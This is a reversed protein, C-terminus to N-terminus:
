YRRKKFQYHSSDDRVWMGQNSSKWYFQEYNENAGYANGDGGRRYEFALDRTSSTPVHCDLHEQQGDLINTLNQAKAFLSSEAEEKMLMQEENRMLKSQIEKQAHRMHTQTRMKEEEAQREMAEWERKQREKDLERVRLKERLVEIEHEYRAFEMQAELKACDLRFDARLNEEKQRYLAFLAKWRNGYDHDFTGEESLRPGLSREKQFDVNKKSFNRDVLGINQDVFTNPEVIVPKLSHGLFYCKEECKQIAINASSKKSFDVFGEGMSKGRNDVLIVAREIEGFVSFAHNLLENTVYPGLNRIKVTGCSPAFKFRLNRGKLLTGDLSRQVKEANAYYDFKVFAFNKENNVFIDAVEMDSDFLGRLDAESIEKGINGIYLRNRGAFKKESPDLPTLDVTPMTSISTIKDEIRDIKTLKNSFNQFGGYQESDDMKCKSDNDNRETFHKGKYKKGSFRKRNFNKKADENTSEVNCNNDVSNNEVQESM